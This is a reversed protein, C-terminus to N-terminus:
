PTSLNIYIPPFGHNFISDPKNQPPHLHVTGNSAIRSAIFTSTLVSEPTVKYPIDTSHYLHPIFFLIVCMDWACQLALFAMKPGVGKLKCLGEVTKPVDGKEDGEQELLTKAAEQIYEAKRRWFGVKNICEQITELPAAALSAASLGGPLSSHLATVAASTVADKTQSSLM